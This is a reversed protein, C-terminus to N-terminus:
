KGICFDRFVVDLIAEVEVRGTIRGLQRMALRLDEARLEPLAATASRRLAAVCSELAERHRLRTLTPASSVGLLAVAQCELREMLGALGHGTKASVAILPRGEFTMDLTSAALDVKNLVLISPMTALTAVSREMEPWRTADFVVLRLDADEARAVARRVGEIEIEDGSSRIGATDALTVPYGALDLHVEIVDRTTGARASVIAVDRRAIANLLSSKGVNPSGVIAVSLGDRTREGRRGDSLHRVIETEIASVDHVFGASLADATEEPFDIDAEAHALIAVLRSRWGDYLRGLEGRMQRLALLRQAETEANILDALGEVATLDLKGNDFARRTFEGPGAPRLGALKALAELMADVTARSGHIQFEAMDEGTESKPGPFWLVVGDDLAAGNEPDRLRAYQAFRPAPLGKGTLGRIATSSAPGSVRIVAIAARGASSSLAFITDRAM